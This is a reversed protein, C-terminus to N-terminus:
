DWCCWSNLFIRPFALFQVWPQQTLLAIAVETSQQRGLKKSSQLDKAKCLRWQENFSNIKQETQTSSCQPETMNLDERPQILLLLFPHSTSDIQNDLELWQFGTQISIYILPWFSLRFFAPSLSFIPSISSSCRQTWIMGEIFDEISLFGM